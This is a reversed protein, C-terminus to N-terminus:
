PVLGELGDPLLLSVRVVDPDCFGPLLMAMGRYFEEVDTQSLTVLSDFEYCHDKILQIYFLSSCGSLSRRVVLLM